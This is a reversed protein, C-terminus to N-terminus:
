GLLVSGRGSLDPRENEWLLFRQYLMGTMLTARITEEPEARGSELQGLIDDALIAAQRALYRVHEPLSKDRSAAYGHKEISRLAARADDIYGPLLLVRERFTPDDLALAPVTDLGTEFKVWSLGGKKKPAM